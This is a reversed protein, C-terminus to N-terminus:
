GSVGVAGEDPGLQVRTMDETDVGERWAVVDGGELPVILWGDPGSLPQSGLVPQLDEVISLDDPEGVALATDGAENKVVVAVGDMSPLLRPTSVDFWGSPTVVDTREGTTVDIMATSCGTTLCGTSVLAYSDSVERVGIVRGLSRIKQRLQPDWLLLNQGRFDGRLAVLGDTTAGKVELGAPVSFVKSRWSGYASALAAGGATPPEADVVLWVSSPSSPIVLDAEGVPGPTGDEDYSVVSDAFVQDDSPYQVLVGSGVVTVEVGGGLERGGTADTVRARTGTDVDVWTLGQPGDTLLRLGTPPPGGSSWPQTAVLAWGALGLLAAVVAIVQVPKPVVWARRAQSPPGADLVDLRTLTVAGCHPTSGDAAVAPARGASAGHHPLNVDTTLQGGRTM